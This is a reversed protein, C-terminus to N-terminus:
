LISFKSQIPIELKEHSRCIQCLWSLKLYRYDLRIGLM